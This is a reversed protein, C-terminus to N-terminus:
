PVVLDDLIVWTHVCGDVRVTMLTSVQEGRLVWAALEEETLRRVKRCRAGSVWPWSYGWALRGTTMLKENHAWAGVVLDGDQPSAPERYRWWHVLPAPPPPLPPYPLPAMAVLQAGGIEPAVRDRWDSGM